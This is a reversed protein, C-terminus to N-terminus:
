RIFNTLSKKGEITKTIGKEKALELAKLLYAMNHALVRMTFLGEEDKEVDERSYGHVENWYSSTVIPMENISFFKNIDDFASTSGARRSSVVAAGLKGKLIHGGSYFVRDLFSKLGGSIGAYYVPGAFVFGDADKALALFDQVGDKIVCEGKVKCYGCAKCDAIPKDGLWYILSDVGDAKLAAAIEELARECCGNKIPSGNVLIVKM